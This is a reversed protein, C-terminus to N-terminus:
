TLQSARRDYHMQRRMALTKLKIKERRDLVTREFLCTRERSAEIQFTLSFPVCKSLGSAQRDFQM